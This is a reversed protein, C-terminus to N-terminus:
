YYMSVLIWKSVGDSVATADYFEQTTVAAGFGHTVIVDSGSRTVFGSSNSCVLHIVKGLGASAALPLTFTLPGTTSYVIDDTVLLTTSAAIGRISNVSGGPKIWAGDGRLYTSSSNTGTGLRAPAVTGSTASNLSTLVHGGVTATSGITPNPYTGALDGGAAGTPAGGGGSLSTWATGNYFYFGATADTQYVLLGTAPSSILTRQSSTMRPVLMGQTTSTVDLMASGDAASGTTNISMGQAVVKHTGVIMLIVIIAKLLQGKQM